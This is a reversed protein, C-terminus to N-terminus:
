PLWANERYWRITETMGEKLTFRPVFNLERRAKEASCVWYKQSMERIKDVYFASPSAPFLAGAARCLAFVITWPLRVPVTRSHLIGAIMALTRNWSYVRGDSVFYTRGGTGPSDVALLIARVLDSVHVISFYRDDWSLSIRFGRTVAQLVRYIEKERPGYVAPPRIVIVPFRDAFAAAEKEAALKSEGYLSIPRPKDEETLLRGDPSPGAASLSSLYIFGSLSPSAEAAAQLLNRTGAANVRFFDERRNAKVRGALHFIWAVGAAAKRLSNLDSLDGSALSVRDRDLFQLSSCDRVLCRVRYGRALLAEILHSGIFGTGGTVLVTPQDSM